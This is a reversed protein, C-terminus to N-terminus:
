GRVRCIGATPVGFVIELYNKTATAWNPAGFVDRGLDDIIVLNPFKENLDHQIRWVLAPTDQTFTFEGIEPIQPLPPCPCPPPEVPDTPDEPDPDVPTPMRGSSATDSITSVSSLIQDLQMRCGASTFLSVLCAADAARVVSAALRDLKIRRLPEVTEELWKTTMWENASPVPNDEDTDDGQMDLLLSGLMAIIPGIEAQFSYLRILSQSLGAFGGDATPQFLPLTRVFLPLNDSVVPKPDPKKYCGCASAEKEPEPTSIAPASEGCKGRLSIRRIANYLDVANSDFVGWGDDLNVEDAIAVRYVPVSPPNNPVAHSAIRKIAHEAGGMAYVSSLFDVVGWNTLVQDASTTVTM